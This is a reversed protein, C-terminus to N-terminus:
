HNMTICSPFLPACEVSQDHITDPVNQNISSHSVNNNATRDAHKISGTVKKVHPTNSMDNYIHSRCIRYFCSLYHVFNISMYIMIKAKDSPAEYFNRYIGKCLKPILTMTYLVM